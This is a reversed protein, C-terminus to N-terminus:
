LGASVVKAIIAEPAANKPASAVISHPYLPQDDGNERAVGPAHPAIAYRPMRDDTTANKRTLRLRDRRLAACADM